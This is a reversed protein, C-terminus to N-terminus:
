LWLWHHTPAQVTLSQLGNTQHSAVVLVLVLVSLSITNALQATHLVVSCQM